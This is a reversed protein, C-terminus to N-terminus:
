TIRTVRAHEIVEVEDPALMAQDLMESAGHVDRHLVGGIFEAVDRLGVISFREPWGDREM